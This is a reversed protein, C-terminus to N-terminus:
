PDAIQGAVGPTLYGYVTVGTPDTLKLYTGLTHTVGPCLADQREPGPVTAGGVSLAAGVISALLFIDIVM